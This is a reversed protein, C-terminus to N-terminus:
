LTLYDKPLYDHIKEMAGLYQMRFAEALTLKIRPAIQKHQAYFVVSAKATEEAM